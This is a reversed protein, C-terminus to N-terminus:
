SGTSSPAAMRCRCMQRATARSIARLTQERARFRRCDAHRLRQESREACLHHHRQGARGDGAHVQSRQPRNHHGGGNRDAYLRRQALGTGSLLGTTGDSSLTITLTDTSGANQDGITVGSFPHVPGDATTPTAHTGSITPAVATLASKALWTLDVPFLGISETASSPNIETTGAATGNTKWLEHHGHSDIGNFLVVGNFAEFNTPDLGVGTTAAGVIGTLEHTGVATGNTMWLQPRGLQDLGRFLVEGNYVMLDSPALGSPDAGTIGTLEHTGAATGNTM